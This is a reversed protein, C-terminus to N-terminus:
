KIEVWWRRYEVDIVVTVEINGFAHEVTSRFVKYEKKSEDAMEMVELFHGCEDRLIVFYWGDARSRALLVGLETSGLDTDWLITLEKNMLSSEIRVSKMAEM